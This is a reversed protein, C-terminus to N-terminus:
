LFTSFVHSILVLSSLKCPTGVFIMTIFENKWQTTFGGIVARNYNVYVSQSEIGNRRQGDSGFLDPYTQRDPFTTAQCNHVIVLPILLNRIM